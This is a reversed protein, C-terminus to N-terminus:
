IPTLRDPSQSTMGVNRKVDTKGSSIILTGSDNMNSPICLDLDKFGNLFVEYHSGGDKNLSFPHFDLSPFKVPPSKLFPFIIKEKLVNQEREQSFQLASM